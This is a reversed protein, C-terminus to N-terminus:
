SRPTSRLRARLLLILRILDLIETDASALVLARRTDGALVTDAALDLLEAKTDDDLAM